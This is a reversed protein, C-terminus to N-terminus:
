FPDYQRSAVIDRNQRIVSNLGDTMLGAASILFKIDKCRSAAISCSAGGESHGFVGIKRRDIDHRSKLYEVGAIVDEAFDATTADAYVGNSEGVGRDDVRLVAIGKSSLYEAIQKYIKHGAMSGDRDQPYTGSAIVIAPHKGPTDPVTLTAGYRLTDKGHFVINEERFKPPVEKKIEEIIISIEDALATPSGYYRTAIWRVHGNGDIIM